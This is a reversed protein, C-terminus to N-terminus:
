KGLKAMILEKILNRLQIGHRVHLVNSRCVETKQTQLLGCRPVFIRHNQSDSYTSTPHVVKAAAEVNTERGAFFSESMTQLFYNWRAYNKEEGKCSEESSRPEVNNEKNYFSTKNYSFVIPSGCLNDINRDELQANALPACTPVVIRLGTVHNQSDSYTQLSYNRRADNKEEGKAVLENIQQNSTSETRLVWSFVDKLSTIESSSLIQSKATEFESPLEAFFSIIAM